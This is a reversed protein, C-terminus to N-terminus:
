GNVETVEYGAAKLVRYSICQSTGYLWPFEREVQIISKADAPYGQMHDITLLVHLTWALYM